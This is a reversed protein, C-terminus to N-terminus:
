KLFEDLRHPQAKGQYGARGANRSRTKGLDRLAPAAQGGLRRQPERLEEAGGGCEPDSQLGLM